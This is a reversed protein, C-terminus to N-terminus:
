GPVSGQLAKALDTTSKSELTKSVDVSSVAGTLNAKKQTGYGVVVVEDLLEVDEQMVVSMGRSARIEVTKYGLFSIVLTSGPRCNITFNGDYDTLTGTTTGKVLVNAGIIPEGSADRVSGTISSSQQEIKVGQVDVEGTPNAMVSGSSLLLALAAVTLIRGDFASGRENRNENM